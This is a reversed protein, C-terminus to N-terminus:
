TLRVTLPQGTVLEAVRPEGLAYTCTFKFRNCTEYVASPLPLNELPYLMSVFSRVSSLAEGDTPTTFLPLWEESLAM